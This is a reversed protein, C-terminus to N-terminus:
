SVAAWLANNSAALTGLASPMTTTRGTNTSDTAFRSNANSLGFNVAAIGNGGAHFRPGTTGNYFWGVYCATTNVAQSAFTAQKLGTSNWVGSQDTSTALLNKSGDFLACFCQGSTLTGGATVVHLWITTAGALAVPVWLKALYITGAVPSATTQGGLTAPDMSWAGAGIHDLHSWLDYPHAHDAHSISASSGSSGAGQSQGTPAAFGERAHRHTAITGPTSADGVASATPSVNNHAFTVSGVGQTVSVETSGTLTKYEQGTAAATMGLVQNATGPGLLRTGATVHIIGATGGAAKTVVGVRSQYSPSTPATATLGGATTSSVYLVDGNSFLHTDLGHVAGLACVYGISNNAIAETALGAALATGYVDAKALAVTPLGTGVNNGNIYVAAGNAITSGTANYVRIWFEQGVQLRVNSDNNDFSLAEADGDYFLQGAAYAVGSGAQATMKVGPTFTKVGAVTEAGALHVVSADAAKTALDTVLNTVASEPIGTFNAPTVDVTPNGAVGDGNTVAVKSSGAVLTRVAATGSGTRVVFGAAALAAYATLDTDAPQAGVDAADLVVAPGPDGNVSIVGSGGPLQGPPIKGDVDLPGAPGGVAGVSAVLVYSYLPDSVAPAIDSLDYTQGPAVAPFQALYPDRGAGVHEAVEYAWGAPEVDSDATSMLEVSIQGSADLAARVARPPLIDGDVPVQLTANPTFTVYGTPIRTSGDAYRWRGTVTVTIVSAPYTMPVHYLGM